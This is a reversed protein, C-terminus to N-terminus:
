HPVTSFHYDLACDAYIDHRAVIIAHQSPMHLSGEVGTDDAFIDDIPQPSAQLSLRLLMITM